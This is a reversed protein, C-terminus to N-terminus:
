VQVWAQRCFCKQEKISSVSTDDPGMGALLFILKQLGAWSGAEPNPGMGTSVFNNKGTATLHRPLYGMSLGSLSFMCACLRAHVSFLIGHRLGGLRLGFALNTTPWIDVLSLASLSRLCVFSSRRLFAGPNGWSRGREIVCRRM